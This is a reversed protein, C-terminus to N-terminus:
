CTVQIHKWYFYYRYFCKFNITFYTYIYLLFLTYKCWANFCWLFCYQLYYWRHCFHSTHFFFLNEKFLVIQSAKSLSLQDVSIGTADKGVWHLPEKAKCFIMLCTSRKWKQRISIEVYSYSYKLGALGLM